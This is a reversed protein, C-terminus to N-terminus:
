RQEFAFALLLRRELEFADAREIGALWAAAVPLPPIAAVQSHPCSDRRRDTGV